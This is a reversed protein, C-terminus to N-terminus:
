FMKRALQSELGNSQIDSCILKLAEELLASKSTASKSAPSKGRSRGLRRLTRQAEEFLDVTDESLYFTVKIKSEVEPTSDEPSPVEPTVSEKRAVEEVKTGKGVRRKEPPFNTQDEAKSTIQKVTKSDKHRLTEGDQHSAPKSDEQEALLIGSTGTQPAPRGTPSITGLLDALIDPTKKREAM